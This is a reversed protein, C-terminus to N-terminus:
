RAGGMLAIRQANIEKEKAEILPTFMPMEKANTGQEHKRQGFLYIENAPRWQDFFLQNKEVVLQRLSELDPRKITKLGLEREIASALHRYGNDDLHISNYTAATLKEDSFLDVFVHGRKQAEAAIAKSYLALNANNEAVKAPALWAGQKLPSILVMRAGTNKSLDDLLKTLEKKFRELGEPGDFSENTGYAIFLVTPKLEGMKQMLRRYGEGDRFFYDRSQGRVNDGSWGLNRFQLNRDPWRTLLATEVHGYLGAREILTNGVFVVRDGDKLEFSEALTAQLCALAIALTSLTKIVRNELLPKRKPQNV